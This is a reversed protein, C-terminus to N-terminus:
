SPLWFAHCGVPRRLHLTQRIIEWRTIGARRKMRQPSLREALHLLPTLPPAEARKADAEDRLRQKEVAQRKANKGRPKVM